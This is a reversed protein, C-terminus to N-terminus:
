EGTKKHGNGNQYIINRNSDKLKETLLSNYDKKWVVKGNICYGKPINKPNVDLFSYRESILEKIGERVILYIKCNSAISIFRDLNSYMGTKVEFSAHNSSFPKLDSTLKDEFIIINM